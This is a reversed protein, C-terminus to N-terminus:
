NGHNFSSSGGYGLMRNATSTKLGLQGAMQGWHNDFHDAEDERLNKYHEHSNMQNGVREKVVKRGKDNLM